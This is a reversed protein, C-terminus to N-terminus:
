AVVTTDTVAINDNIIGNKVYILLAASANTVRLCPSFAPSIIKTPELAIKPANV